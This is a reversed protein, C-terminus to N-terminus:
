VLYECYGCRGGGTLPPLPEDATVCGTNGCVRPADAHKVDPWYGGATRGGSLLTLLLAMRVYMGLRAQEFYRARSDDDVDTSIEDVRPLPHLVIM